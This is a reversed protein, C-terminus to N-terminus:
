PHECQHGEYPFKRRYWGALRFLVYSSLLIFMYAIVGWLVLGIRNFGCAMGLAATMWIMSATTIGEIRDHTKFIVGGGVFGIGTVVQAAIRTVDYHSIGASRTAEVSLLAFLCSGLSIFSFTRLSAAKNKIEREFGIMLGTIAALMILKATVPFYLTTGFLTFVTDSLRLM